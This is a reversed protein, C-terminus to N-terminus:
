GRRATGTPEQASETPTQAPGAPTQGPVAPTQAPAAPVALGDFIVRLARSRVAMALGPYAAARSMGVLLAYLEPLEIDGRVAGAEQARRLLGGVAASLQESARDAGTGSGESGGGEAVLAEALAIKSPADSVMEAFMDFLAQGPDASGGLREARARLRDFRQELVADLLDAKTPFHRFVTAIGVGAIRAVEETSASAGGRGFVAAAAALIKARNSQADARRAREAPTM